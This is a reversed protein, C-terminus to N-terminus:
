IVNRTTRPGGQKPIRFLEEDFKESQAGEHRQQSTEALGVGDYGGRTLPFCM